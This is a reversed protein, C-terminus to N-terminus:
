AFHVQALVTRKMKLPLLARGFIVDAIQLNKWGRIIDSGKERKWGGEFPNTLWDYDITGRLLQRWKRVGCTRNAWRDTSSDILQTQLSVSRCLTQSNRASIRVKVKTQLLFFPPTSMNECRAVYCLSPPFRLPILHCQTRTASRELPVPCIPKATLNLQEQGSRRSTRRLNLNTRMTQWRWGQWGRLSWMRWM